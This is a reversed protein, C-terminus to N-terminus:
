ELILFFVPSAVLLLVVVVRFLWRDVVSVSMM